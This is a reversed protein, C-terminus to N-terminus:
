QLATLATVALYCKPKACLIICSRQMHSRDRVAMGVETEAKVAARLMDGTSLHVLGYEEKLLECQTGKGSAPAGCIIIKPPTKADAMMQSVLSRRRHVIPVSEEARMGLSLKDCQESALGAKGTSLAATGCSMHASLLIPMAGSPAPAWASTLALLSLMTRRLIYSHRSLDNARLRARHSGVDRLQRSLVSSRLGLRWIQRTTRYFIHCIHVRGESYQRGSVIMEPYNAM